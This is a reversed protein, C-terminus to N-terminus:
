QRDLIFFSCSYDNKPGAEGCGARNEEWDASSLQPFHADGEVRARVRTLYIREAQNIAQRYIEAGGIVCIEDSGRAKAYQAAINLAEDVGGARIAGPASWSSSRTIVINDRGPLAGPLSEFTKRGMVLPKGKTTKKFWKLDDSIRWPLKGNSGIVGNEAVAVVLAIRM